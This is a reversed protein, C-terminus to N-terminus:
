TSRIWAFYGVVTNSKISVKRLVEDNKSALGIQENQTIGKYLKPAIKSVNNSMFLM